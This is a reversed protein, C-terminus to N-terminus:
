LEEIYYVTSVTRVDNILKNKCKSKLQCDVSKLMHKLVSMHPHKLKKEYDLTFNYGCDRIYERNKQFFEACQDSCMEDRGVNKFGSLSEIQPKDLLTLLNNIFKLTIRKLKQEKTEDAKVCKDVTQELITMNSDDLYKMNNEIYNVQTIRDSKIKKKDTNLITTFKIYVDNLERDPLEGVTENIYKLKSKRDRVSLESNM